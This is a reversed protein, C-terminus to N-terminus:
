MLSLVLEYNNISQSLLLKYDVSEFEWYKIQKKLIIDKNIPINEIYKKRTTLIIDILKKNHMSLTISNDKCKEDASYLKAGHKLLLDVTNKPIIPGSNYITLMLANWGSQDEINIDIDYELLKKIRKTKNNISAYHFVNRKYRDMINVDAGYDLLTKFMGKAYTLATRGINDQININANYSLLIKVTQKTSFTNLSSLALMLASWGVGNQIDIQNQFLLLYEDIYENLFSHEFTEMVCKHLHTFGNLVSRTGCSYCTHKDDLLLCNLRNENKIQEYLCYIKTNKQYPNM